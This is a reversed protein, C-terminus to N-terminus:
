FEPEFFGIPWNTLYGKSDYGSKIVRSRVSGEEKEFILIQVDENNIAGESILQGFRNILHNSHTEIVMQLERNSKPVAAFVDALKAQMAPHLHLEPQEIVICSTNKTRQVPRMSMWIQVIVPLIQSFGFGIDTLNTEVNRGAESVVVAVHGGASQTKASFGFHEETWKNFQAIHWPGLSDLYMAVNEGKSDIEDIALEQKRYYREATARLPEIYRVGLFYDKLASNIVRLLENVKSGFILEENEVFFRALNKKTANDSNSFYHTSWPQITEALKGKRFLPILTFAHLLREGGSIGLNNFSETLVDYFPVFEEYHSRKGSPTRERMINLRPLIEQFEVDSYDNVKPKWTKGSCTISDVNNLENIKIEVDFGLAKVKIIPSYSRGRAGQIAFYIEADFGEDLVGSAVSLSQFSFGERIRLTLNFEIREEQGKQLAEAFSGFDTRGGFWLIPARTKAECSQRLLPFTRAFTSKGASNKGVLVTIPALNLSNEMYISRLNKISISQLIAEM